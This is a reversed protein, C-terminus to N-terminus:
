DAQRIRTVNHAGCVMCDRVYNVFKDNSSSFVSYSWEHPALTYLIFEEYDCRTCKELYHGQETCTSCVHEAAGMAHGLAPLKVQFSLACNACSVVGIGNETCTASELIGTMKLAHSVTTEEVVEYDCRSCAEKYYGPETCTARKVEAATFHGKAAITKEETYDCGYRTCAFTEKGEYDCGADVLSVSKMDHGLAAEREVETYGCRGCTRSNVGDETCTAATASGMNYSHGLAPITKEETHDCGYRTCAFTEKGEWDCGADLLSVSKMEHGLAAEYTEEVSGCRGCTRSVLGQATCTPAVASSADYAHGLAKEGLTCTELGCYECVMDVRGGETCTAKGVAVTKMKHNKAKITKVEAHDCGYRTCALTETGESECGAPVLDVSKMDHGLAAEYTEEVYGCRGCTRSEMGEATCTPAIATSMNYAHGLAAETTATNEKRCRICRLHIYGAETCTADVVDVSKMNCGLADIPETKVLQDSAQCYTYATGERDCWPATVEVYTAAHEKTAAVNCYKENLMEGCDNCVLSYYGMECCSPAKTLVARSGAHSCAAMANAGFWCAVAMVLVAFWRNIRKATFNDVIVGEM